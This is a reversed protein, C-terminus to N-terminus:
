SIQVWGLLGGGAGGDGEAGEAVIGAGEFEDITVFGTVVALVEAGVAAEEFDAVAACGWGHGHSWRRPFYIRGFSGWFYNCVFYGWYVCGVAL